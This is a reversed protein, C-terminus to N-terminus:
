QIKQTQLVENMTVEKQQKLEVPNLLTSSLETEEDCSIEKIDLPGRDEDLHTDIASDVHVNCDINTLDNQIWAWQQEKNKKWTLMQRLEKSKHM